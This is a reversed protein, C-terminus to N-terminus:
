EIFNVVAETHAPKIVNVLDELLTELRTDGIVKDFSDIVDIEFRFIGREQNILTALSTIEEVEKGFDLLRTTFVDEVVPAAFEPNSVYNLDNPVGGINKISTLRETESFRLNDIRARAGQQEFVDTGIYVRSFTDTLNIDDVVFRDVGSRVEAQGWIVGTGYILGTGYKITGSETGDVFLRIRDQGNDSNTRWMAMVRHWTHRKWDVKVSVLHEEGSAKIFFNIFGRSDRFISLRDGQSDLPVYTVKVQVNQAPLPTGLTLTRNDLNSISGGTFYNTGQNSTDSLLRVSEIERARQNITVNVRTTSEQEETIFTGTDVYYHNNPDGTTDDLPSVWFEITGENNNIVGGANDIIFPSNDAILISAGFNDNVGAASIFGSDFSDIFLASDDLNDSFHMLLLTDNDTDFEEGANFDTTISREGFPLEEGIRTDNSLTKLIRLEDIVGDFRNSGTYDTGLLMTDPQGDMRIRLFTPYDVEYTCSQLIFPDGLTGFIDLEVIGNDFNVVEAYDGNNDSENLPKNERVELVGTPQMPNVPVLSVQVSDISTWYETTTKTANETFTVTETTAGSFTTGKITIENGTVTYDVNDGSVMIDLARGRVTNSPQCVATSDFVTQLVPVLSGGISATVIGLESPDLLFKPMLIATIDFDSLTVPAPGIFRITNTGESYAFLRAKCRRFVLGLSKIIMDEGLAVGNQVSIVHIGDAGRSIAYDPELASIGNLEVEVGDSDRTVVIFDQYNIPTTVNATVQNVSFHIDGLTLTFAASVTLTNGGVGTITYTGNDANDELIHLTDGVLIGLDDFDLTESRFLMSGSETNGDREGVIPRTATGITEEAVDGFNFSSNTQPNGGYKFLNPVEFGDIFMHMEDRENYSNFRWSVSVHHSSGADWDGVYASINYRGVNDTYRAQNDFVEFNLYGTGDKYLSMRNSDPNQAMDFLYHIDGAGFSIGDSSFEPSPGTFETDTFFGGDVLGVFHMNSFTGGDIVCVFETNLFSGGDVSGISGPGERCDITADFDITKTRSTILDNAEVLLYGDPGTPFNVNFFEGDATITGKYRHGESGFTHVDERRDRWRINWVDSFEDFWIFYGIDDDINKPQGFVSIGGTSFNNLTFPISTPNVGDFGIYVNEPELYGDRTIDFTLTADNALGDWEPIVWAQWTGEELRVNALAPIEVTNSTARTLALGNGFKGVDYTEDTSSEVNRLHLHSTGLVWQNFVAERIEPEVDTFAEVLNKIAPITPGEVFSQLTGQVVSRYTERNLDAPFNTLLPVQTLSGFNTLLPERLAGFKYTVYYTDGSNLANSIGWDISNNGYEYTILLDDRLYRYDVFIEGFNYVVIVADGPELANDGSLTIINGSFSDVNIDFYGDLEDAARSGLQDVRYINQVANINHEVTITKAAGFSTDLVTWVRGEATNLFAPSVTVQRDSIVGTITVDESPPNNSSGVRLERGIDNATFLASNSTFVNSGDTTVGDEGSQYTGVLLPRAPNNNVFREGVQELGVINVATDSVAGSSYTTINPEISSASRYIDNVRLIHDNTTLIDKYEYSIDGLDSGQGASVAVYIIGNNYDVVYEGIATLRNINSTVSEFLRDEYFKEKQFVTEDSFLVSTDFNAGIYRRQSDTIGANSLNVKLVRLSSSNVFEDNILLVEQPVRVFRVRERSVDLQVPAQRGTFIVSTDTVRDVTYIEGTTENFIRFADTVPFNLTQVEFEDILRNNVRENLVEIHSSVLYDEGEAFTDAFDFRVTSEIGEINRTSKIALEDRDSNFTYDINETFIRRYFYTAAPPTNGTGFNNLDEGFVFVRGTSYDISYEGPGSPARNADFGVEIRFAPHTVTFPPNGDQPSSNLFQVGNRTAIDDNATVIPANDLNFVTISAPVVERVQERTTSLEVTTPSIDRGLRKYVYSVRLTDGPRPLVFGGPLGTISASSLEIEQDSLNVNISGSTTDYRNDKLAYGFSNIDYPILNGDRLLDVSILQAVPRQTVKITLGDFFNPANTDDSVVENLVQIAQLSIPDATLSGIIPNVITTPTIKAQNFRSENFSISGSLTSADSSAGVRLIEYVGGNSLKDTPGDDRLIEEDTVTVSLYNASATTRVADLAEQFGDSVSSLLNRIISPEENEYVIPLVNLMEDRIDNQVDGPSTLLLVNRTGNEIISEGNVTQFSQADTSLFTFTYQKNPFLPRYNVTVVDNEVSVSNVSTSPINDLTPVITINNVTINPDIDDSFLIQIRRNTFSLVRIIALAM